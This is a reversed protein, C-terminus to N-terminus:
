AAARAYGAPQASFSRRALGPTLAFQGAARILFFCVYAFWLGDNGYGRGLWLLAVYGALAVAMSLLM